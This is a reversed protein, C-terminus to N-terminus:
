YPPWPLPPRDAPPTPHVRSRILEDIRRELARRAELGLDQEFEDGLEGAVLRRLKQVATLLEAPVTADAFGWLVTRLKDDVHFTLGHDIAWIRGRSAHLLHSAKRDANNVVVDLVAVPWISDHLSNILDVVAQDAVADVFRQVAGPGFPGDGLATEPVLDFGLARDIRFTWVERLPLTSADFDWLPRVGAIPKYIVRDGDGTAGLLTANSAEVFRGAVTEVVPHWEHSTIVCIETARPVRTGTPTSRLDAVSAVLAVM